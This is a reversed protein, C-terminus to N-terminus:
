KQEAQLRQEEVPGYRDLSLARAAQQVAAHLRAEAAVMGLALGCELLGDVDGQEAHSLSRHKWGAVAAHKLLPSSAAKRVADWEIMGFFLKNALQSELWRRSLLEQHGSM